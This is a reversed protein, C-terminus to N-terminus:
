GAKAELYKEVSRVDAAIQPTMRLSFTAGKEVFVVRTCEERALWIRGARACRRNGSRLRERKLRNLAGQVGANMRMLRLLTQKRRAEAPVAKITFHVTSTSAPKAM